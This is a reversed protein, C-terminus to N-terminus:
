ALRTSATTPLMYAKAARAPITGSPVLGARPISLNLSLRRSRKRVALSSSRSPLAIRSASVVPMGHVTSPELGLALCRGLSLLPEGFDSRRRRRRKPQKQEGTAPQPFNEVQTPLIDIELPSTQEQGIALAAPFGHNEIGRGQRNQVPQLPDSRIHHGAVIRFFRTVIKLTRPIGDGLAGTKVANAQVIQPVGICAKTGTASQSKGIM